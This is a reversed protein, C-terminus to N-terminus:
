MRSSVKRSSGTLQKLYKRLMINEQTMREREEKYLKCSEELTIITTSACQIIKDKPAKPDSATEPVMVRLQQFDVKLGGRRIREMQNLQQRKESANKLTRGKSHRKANSISKSTVTTKRRGCKEQVKQGRSSQQDVGFSGRSSKFKKQSNKHKIPKSCTNTIQVSKSGVVVRSFYSHDCHINELVTMKRRTKSGVFAETCDDTFNIVDVEENEAEDDILLV